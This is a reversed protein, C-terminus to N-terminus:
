YKFGLNGPHMTHQQGGSSNMRAACPLATVTGQHATALERQASETMRCLHGFQRGLGAAADLARHGEQRSVLPYAAADHKLGNVGGDGPARM